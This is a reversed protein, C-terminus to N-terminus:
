MTWEADPQWNKIWEPIKEGSMPRAIGFGQALYCGMSLLQTGHAISEVGEALVDRNFASALGIIGMVIARDDADDLMDRIFSRDIKLLDVPLRKLYTLSSFGTGFDDLSFSVGLRICTRMIALVETLDGLASTELIELRLSSPSVEPYKELAASLKDIFDQQLLQVPDINVSVQIDLGLAIWDSLQKLATDMVWDGLDVCIPNNELMPLFDGPYMFGRNPHQWRILAELGIVEGTRMNVKPQYHLLFEQQEIGRKVHDITEHKTQISKDKHIDFLHYRNKGMQKSIYMAQDAHRMLQDADVGDQPFLTVGISTSVQVIYDEVHVPSKAADLLRKLVLECDSYTELDVLVAVFEDGGIRALTDGERLTNEMLRSLQILLEDGIDHGYTDNVNKFGDLDLYVVAVLYGHRRSQRMAHRLRDALLMRNPLNTLTDYHAIHELQEQHHKMPTIDSFLAVYNQTDGNADLVASITVLGVFADGDKRSIWLEGSWQKNALLLSLIDNYFEQGEREARLISYNQGIIEQQSYGTMHTFTDNADIVMGETDTILIAERAHTFVSAALKLREEIKKNETIDIVEIIRAQRGKYMINKGKVSLPFVSGDKRVAKVEYSDVYSNKIREYIYDVYEPAVLDIWSKGILESYRYGTIDSLGDNCELIVGKEHIIIGGYTAASLAKFREESQVLKNQALTMRRNFRHFYFTIAGALLVLAFSAILAPTVWFPLHVPDPDYIFGDLYKEDKVMGSNIFTTAMHQFREPNMHGIQILDPIILKRIEDAEFRLHDRTKNVKYKTILLDIIEEPHDMAYRWGKLTARLMAAVRQPHYRLESESTFFIDSYFDVRYTVPDIINYEINKQKLYYTENTIYSNFADVKGTILDELNFSSPIINVQSLAIGENTLMTLFDADESKNSLMVKKGILDHVSRIGSSKLTLLVSPSHQFIAALAVLPKGQLRRYLVESNGEGYLASGSLVDTVPRHGPSGSRLVVDLGEEKYFGKEVAAYYGAFQFQHLWRLQIIIPNSSQEAYSTTAWSLTVLTFSFFVIRAIISCM